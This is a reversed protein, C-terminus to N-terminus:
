RWDQGEEEIWGWVPWTSQCTKSGRRTRSSVASRVTVSGNGQLIEEQLQQQSRGAAYTRATPQESGTEERTIAGTKGTLAAGDHGAM